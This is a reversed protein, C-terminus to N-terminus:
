PLSMTTPVLNFSSKNIVTNGFTVRFYFKALRNPFLFNNILKLCHEFSIKSVFNTKEKFKNRLTLDRCCISMAFLGFNVFVTRSAPLAKDFGFEPLFTFSSAAFTRLSRACM